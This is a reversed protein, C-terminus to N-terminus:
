SFVAGYLRNVPSWRFRLYDMIKVTGITLIVAVVISLVLRWAEPNASNMVTHLLQLIAIQVIYGFLSYKGLLVINRGIRGMQEAREGLLYILMVNLCVGVIQLPYVANWAALGILYVAYAVGLVYPRGAIAKISQIPVFGILVGLLGITVLELNPSSLAHLWLGFMVCFSMGIVIHVSYACRRSILSLLATLLLLAGIPVLIYFSVLKTHGLAINGTLCAVAIRYLLAVRTVETTRLHFHLSIAANLALFIGFIKLGRLVLRKSLVGGSLARNSLYVAPM